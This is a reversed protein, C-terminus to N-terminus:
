SSTDERKDPIELSEKKLGFFKWLPHDDTNTNKESPWDEKPISIHSLGYNTPLRKPNNKSNKKTHGQSSPPPSPIYSSSTSTTSLLRSSSALPLSRLLSISRTM